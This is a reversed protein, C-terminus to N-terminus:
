LSGREVEGVASPDAQHGLVRALRVVQARGKRQRTDHRYHAEAAGRQRKTKRVDCKGAVRENRETEFNLNGLIPLFGNEMMAARRTAIAGVVFDWPGAFLVHVKALVCLSRSVIMARFSRMRTSSCRP